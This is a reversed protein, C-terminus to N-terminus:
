GEVGGDLVPLEAVVDLEIDGIVAGEGLVPGGILDGGVVDLDVDGVEVVDGGVVDGVTIDDILDGGVVPGEVLDGGVVDGVVVDVDGVDILDGGVNDGGVNDGGVIDGIEVDGVNVIDGGAQDGGVQDGGVIDGIEVDVDLENDVVNDDGVVNGDGTVNEDGIVVDGDTGVINDDGDVDDNDENGVSNGDGVVVTGAGAGGVVNDDGDVDDNDENFSGDIDVDIDTDNDENFSGDIDIDGVTINTSNDVSEDLAVSGGAAISDDGSAVVADNDFVQTVDGDAWINQNVSQDTITDRDDTHSTYTYNNVISHLQAVAHGHDDDHHVPAVHVPAVHAAPAAAVPAWTNGAFNGTANGGTNYERDFSSSVTIPAYDVVVPLVAEVDDWCVGGLGADELAQEPDELFDAAAEPDNFLNMLFDLLSSALTAM